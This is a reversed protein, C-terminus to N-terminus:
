IAHNNCDSVEYDFPLLPHRTPRDEVPKIIQYATDSADLEDAEMSTHRKLVLFVAILAVAVIVLITSMAVGGAIGGVIADLNTDSGNMAADAYMHATTM